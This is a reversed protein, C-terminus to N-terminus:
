DDDHREVMVTIEGPYPEVVGDKRLYLTTVAQGPTANVNKYLIAGPTTREMTMKVTAFTSM